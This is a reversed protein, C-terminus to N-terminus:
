FTNLSQVLGTVDPTQGDALRKLFQADATISKAQLEQALALFILDYIATHFRFMWRIAAEILGPTTTEILLDVKVQKVIRSVEDATFQRSFYLANALEVPMLDPAVLVMAGAQYQKRLKEAQDSDAEQVFWKVVVSTDIVYLDAPINM